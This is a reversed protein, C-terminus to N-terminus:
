LIDKINVKKFDPIKSEPNANLIEIGLREADKAIAPFGRMHMKFTGGVTRLNGHYFKHWHQNQEADLQMDFGLLIIQKVGFHHALNIATAGSNKHWQLRDNQSLIGVNDNRRLLVKVRTHYMPDLHHMCTIRLGPFALIQDKYGNWFGDDGFFVVDIWTGIKFAVNIAITHEKHICSLYPSYAEPTLTGAYVAKIVEEPVGFQRPMSPGGGIIFCRGGDWIKPVRWM